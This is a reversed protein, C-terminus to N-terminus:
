IKIELMGDVVRTPYYPIDAVAPLHTARGDRLDFRAGHRPCIIEFGDLDGDGLPNEDHSCADWIAYFNGAINFVVVPEGKIELFLREGNKLEEAKLVPYFKREESM